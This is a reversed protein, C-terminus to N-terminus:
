DAASRIRAVPTATTTTKTADLHLDPSGFQVAQDSLPVRRRVLPVVQVRDLQRNIVKHEVAEM